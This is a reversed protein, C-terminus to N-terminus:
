ECSCNGCCGEGEGEGCGGGCNGSCKREGHLGSTLEEETADRVLLIEGTFHLDKGAMQHNFDMTVSEPNIKVVTGPMVGGSNDMMPVVNGEFLIDTALEGDRMFISKPLDIVARPDREGYGEAATLRFDFDDGVQKGLLNAEFKPLLYGMGFIFELPRSADCSDAIKGDVELQYVLHVVKNDDIQMIFTTISTLLTIRGFNIGEQRFFLNQKYM